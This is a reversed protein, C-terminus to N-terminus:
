TVAKAFQMLGLDTAVRECMAALQILEELLHAPDPHKHRVEDCVEDLEEALIAYGEHLSKIPGYEHTAKEYEAQVLDGFTPQVIKLDPAPKM